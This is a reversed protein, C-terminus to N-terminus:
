ASLAVTANEEAYPVLKSSHAPTYLGSRKGSLSRNGICGCNWLLTKLVKRDETGEQDPGPEELSCLKGGYCCLLLSTTQHCLIINSNPDYCSAIPM